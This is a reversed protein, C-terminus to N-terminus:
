NVTWGQNQITEVVTTYMFENMRSGSNSTTGGNTHVGVVYWDDAGWIPGGSNGGSTDITYWLRSDTASTISGKMAFPNYQVTSGNNVYKPYGTIEVPLNVCASYDHYWRYGVWGSDYGINEYLILIAWDYNTDHNEAWMTPAIFQKVTATGYPTGSSNRGPALTGNDATGHEESYVMHGATIAVNPAVMFASGRSGYGDTFNMNLYGVTNYPRTTSSVQGRGDSGGIISNPSITQPFYPEVEDYLTNSKMARTIYTSITNSFDEVTTEGTETDTITLSYQSDDITEKQSTGISAANSFNILILDFLVVTMLMSIIIKKM